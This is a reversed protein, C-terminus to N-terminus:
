TLHPTALTLPQSPASGIANAHDFGDRSDFLQGSLLDIPCVRFLRALPIVDAVDRVQGLQLAVIGTPAQGAIEIRNQLFHHSGLPLMPLSSPCLLRKEHSSTAVTSLM